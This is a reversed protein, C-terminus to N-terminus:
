GSYVKAQTLGEHLRTNSYNKLVKNPDQKKNGAASKARSSM